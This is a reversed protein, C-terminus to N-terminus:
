VSRTPGSKLSLTAEITLMTGKTLQDFSGTNENKRWTEINM